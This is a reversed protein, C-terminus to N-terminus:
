AGFFRFVLIGWWCFFLVGCVAILVLVLIWIVLVCFIWVGAGVVLLLFPVFVAILFLLARASFWRFYLLGLIWILFYPLWGVVDAWFGGVLCVRFVSCSIGLSVPCSTGCVQVCQRLIRGSGLGGGLFWYVGLYLGCRVSVRCFGVGGLLCVGGLFRTGLMSLCLGVFARM